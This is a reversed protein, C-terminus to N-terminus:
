FEYLLIGFREMHCTELRAEVTFSGDGTSSPLIYVKGEHFIEAHKMFVHHGWGFDADHIPLWMWSNISLNPCIMTQPGLRVTKVDETKEILDISSRLYEDNMGKLVEQILKLTALFPESRIEGARAVSAANLIVNGFYGPPLCPQLRNRGDIPMLLKVEQDEALNHAKTACRWIHAALINYTSYKTNSSAENVKSKLAKVQEATIKFASATSPKSISQLEPSPEFEVHHFKPTPPDRARLITRDLVPAISPSVGRATDAWSNIFHNGSHGDVLTHHISVGLSVGGCKFTTVQLGLLPYSSIGGSYDFKPVLAFKSGDSDSSTEAEVFLVGEGNCVIELRGSEDYGLRGAILAEKLVKTDFFNSSGNLKYFYVTSVHYPMTVLDLNSLWLSTKPTEECPCVMTTEKVVVEM